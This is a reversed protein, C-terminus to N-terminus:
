KAERIMDRLEEQYEELEEVYKELKVDISDHSQHLYNIVYAHMNGSMNYELGDKLSKITHAVSEMKQAAMSIYELVEGIEEMADDVSDLEKKLDRINIDQAVKSLEKSIKSM